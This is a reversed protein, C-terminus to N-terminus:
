KTTQKDEWRKLASEVQSRIVNALAGDLDWSAAKTGMTIASSLRQDSKWWVGMKEKLTANDFWARARPLVDAVIEDMRSRCEDPGWQNMLKALGKCAGCSSVGLRELETSLETGPGEGLPEPQTPHPKPHEPTVGQPQPPPALLFDVGIVTSPQRVGRSDTLNAVAGCSCTITPISLLFGHGAKSPVAKLNWKEPSHDCTETLSITLEM